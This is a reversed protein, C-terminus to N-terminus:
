KSTLIIMLEKEYVKLVGKLNGKSDNPGMCDLIFKLETILEDEKLTSLKDMILSIEDSTLPRKPYNPDLANEEGLRNVKFEEYTM